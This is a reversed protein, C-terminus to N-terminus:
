MGIRPNAKFNMLRDNALELLYIFFPNSPELLLHLQIMACEVEHIYIITQILEPASQSPKHILENRKEAGKILQKYFSSEVDTYEKLISKYLKSIPPSPLESLLPILEPKLRGLFEKIAQEAATAACIWMYRTNTREQFAKHLQEFAAFPLNNQKKITSVINDLLNDPLIYQVDKTVWITNRRDPVELWTEKDSSWYFKSVFRGFFDTEYIGYFYKLTISLKEFTDSMLNLYEELEPHIPLIKKVDSFYEIRTKDSAISITTIFGDEDHGKEIHVEGVIANWLPKTDPILIKARGLPTFKGRLFIKTSTDKM